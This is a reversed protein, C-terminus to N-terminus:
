REVSMNTMVWIYTTVFFRQKGLKEDSEIKTLKTKMTIPIGMYKLYSDGYWVLLECGESIEKNVEYFVEGEEQVLVLNQEGEHRACNM